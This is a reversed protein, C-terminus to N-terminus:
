HIRIFDFEYFGGRIKYFFEEQKKQMEVALESELVHIKEILEQLRGM